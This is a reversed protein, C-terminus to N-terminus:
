IAVPVNSLPNDTLVHLESIGPEMLIVEEIFYVVYFGAKKTDPVHIFDACQDLLSFCDYNM